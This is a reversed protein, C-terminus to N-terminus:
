NRYSALITAVPLSMARRAPIIAALVCLLVSVGWLLGADRWRLDVPLFSLPYVDTSLLKMGLLTELLGALDPASLALLAGLAVGVSAGVIGILGGQILFVWVIDSRAAGLARLIAIAGRRDTVVLVLSSVVNFAAVAIISLLLLTILDRSLEIAAYLNGQSATWDTAYLQPPLTRALQWRLTPAAFLDDLQLALGAGPDRDASLATVDALDALLLREDLETGSRLVAAVNFTVTRAETGPELSASRAPILVRVADGVALNLKNALAQGLAMQGDGLGAGAPLLLDGWVALGDADLGLLRAAHVRQGRMLLVDREHFRSVRQVGDLGGLQARREQWDEADAYGRVAVHPVLDLIRERMEREFGNMVSLVALLVAVALILGLMSLRSLFGSLGRGSGTTQRWALLMRQQWPM